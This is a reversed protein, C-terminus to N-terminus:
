RDADADDPAVHEPQLSVRCSGVRQPAPDRIPVRDM